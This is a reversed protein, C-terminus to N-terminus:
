QGAGDRTELDLVLLTAGVALAPAVLLDALPILLGALGALGFGITEARYRRHWARKQSFGLGRRTLPPDTFQFALAFAAWLLALAPGILPIFTLLFIGPAAALFYFAGLLSEKLEWALGSGRDESSGRIIRETQRSLRDLIPAALVLALAFGLAAGAALTAVWTLFSLPVAMWAPAPLLAGVTEVAWPAAWVGFGLGGVLM